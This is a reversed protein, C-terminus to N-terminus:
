RSCRSSRFWSAPRPGRPRCGSVAALGKLSHAPRPRPASARRGRSKAALGSRGPGRWSAGGRGPRPARCPSEGQRARRPAAVQRGAGPGRPLPGLGPSRARDLGAGQGNPGEPRQRRLVDVYGHALFKDLWAREVPLFGSVTENQKPRALDVPKHATNFDGAAVVPKTKRLEQAYALFADYFALKFDLREQSMQGNPFYVNLLHFDQHETHVCRGEGQFAPDPLGFAHATPPKRLLTATGSYGKKGKSPNWLVCAFGEPERDQPDLQAPEAKIEQLLVADADCAALWQRYGKAAAARLGNVNWSYLKM